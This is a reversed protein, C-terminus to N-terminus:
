TIKEIGRDVVNRMDLYTDGTRQVKTKLRRKVYEKLMNEWVSLDFDATRNFLYHFLLYMKINGYNM